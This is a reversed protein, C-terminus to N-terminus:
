WGHNYSTFNNNPYYTSIEQVEGARPSGYRLIHKPRLQKLVEKYGVLWNGSAWKDNGVGMSNIAIIDAGISYGDLCMDLTAIDAWTVDRYDYTWFTKNVEKRKHPIAM